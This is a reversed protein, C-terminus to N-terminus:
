HSLKILDYWPERIQKVRATGPKYRWQTYKKSPHVSKTRTLKFKILVKYNSNSSLMSTASKKCFKSVSGKITFWATRKGKKTRTWHLNHLIAGKPKKMSVALDPLHDSPSPITMLPCSLARKFKTSIDIIEGKISLLIQPFAKKERKNFVMLSIDRLRPSFGLFIMSQQLVLSVKNGLLDLETHIKNGHHHGLEHILIAVASPISIAEVMQLHNKFQLLDLNLYIKDGLHNGTKAVKVEGDILFMGPNKSESDFQLQDNNKYEDDLSSLITILIKKERGTLNCSQTNKCIQIYSQLNLYAFMVNQQAMSGGNNVEDGFAHLHDFNGFCLFIAGLVINRATNRSQM